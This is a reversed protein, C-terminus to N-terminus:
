PCRPVAAAPLGATLKRAVRSPRPPAKWHGALPRSWRVAVRGLKSLVLWGTDLRAGTGFENSTFSSSRTASKFRPVGAKEGRQSRRFFAQYTQDLRALVDHLLHSHIAAYAPFEARIAKLEAEQEYRTVARRCRQWATIRQARATTDLTRCHWMSDALRREQEPTPKLQYKFTKRVSAVTESM